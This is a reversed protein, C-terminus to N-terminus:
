NETIEVIVDHTKISSITYRSVSGEKRKFTPQWQRYGELNCKTIIYQPKGTVNVGRFVFRRMKLYSFLPPLGRQPSVCNNDKFKEKINIDIQRTVRIPLDLIAPGKKVKVEKIFLGKDIIM